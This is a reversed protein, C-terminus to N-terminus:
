PRVAWAPYPEPLKDVSYREEAGAVRDYSNFNDDNLHTAREEAERQSPYAETFEELYGDYVGFLVGLDDDDPGAVTHGHHDVISSM